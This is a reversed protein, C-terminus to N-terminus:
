KLIWIDTDKKLGAKFEPFMPLNEKNIHMPKYSIDNTLKGLYWLGYNTYIEPKIQVICANTVTWMIVPEVLIVKKYVNIQKQLKDNDIVLLVIIVVATIVVAWFDLCKHCNM